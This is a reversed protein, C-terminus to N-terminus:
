RKFFVQLAHYEFSSLTEGDLWEMLASAFATANTQPLWELIHDLKVILLLWFEHAFWPLLLSDEEHDHM